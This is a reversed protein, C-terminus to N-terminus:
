LSLSLGTENEFYSKLQDSYLNAENSVVKYTNGRIIGFETDYLDLGNLSVKFYNAKNKGRIPFRFSLCNVDAMFNKAGIMAGLRNAGGMQNLITTAIQVNPNTM